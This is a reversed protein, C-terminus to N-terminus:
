LQMVKRNSNQLTNSLNLLLERITAEDEFLMWNRQQEDDKCQTLKEFLTELVRTDASKEVDVADSLVPNDLETLLAPVNRFLLSCLLTLRLDKLVVQGLM